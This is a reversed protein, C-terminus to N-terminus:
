YYELFMGNVTTGGGAVSGARVGFTTNGIFPEPASTINFMAGVNLASGYYPVLTTNSRDIIGYELVLVSVQRLFNDSIIWDYSFNHIYLFEGGHDESLRNAAVLGTLGGGVIVYDYEDSGHWGGSSKENSADERPLVAATALTAYLALAAWRPCSTSFSPFM